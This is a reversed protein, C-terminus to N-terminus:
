KSNKVILQCSYVTQLDSVAGSAKTEQVKQSGEQEQRVPVVPNGTIFM